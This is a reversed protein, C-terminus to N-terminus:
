VTIEKDGATSSKECKIKKGKEFKNGCGSLAAWTDVRRKRWPMGIDKVALTPCMFIQNFHAVVSYFSHKIWVICICSMCSISLVPAPRWERTYARFRFSIIDIQMYSCLGPPNECLRLYIVRAAMTIVHSSSRACHYKEGCTCCSLDTNRHLFHMRNFGWRTQM